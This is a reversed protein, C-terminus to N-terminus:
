FNRLSANLLNEEELYQRFLLGRPTITYGGATQELLKSRVLYGIFSPINQYVNPALIQHENFVEQLNEFSVYGSSAAILLAKIQTGFIIRYIKELEYRTSIERLAATRGEPTSIDAQQQDVDVNESQQKSRLDFEVGDKSVKKIIYESFDPLWPRLLFYGAILFIIWKLKDLYALFRDHPISNNSIWYRNLMYAMLAIIVLVIALRTLKFLFYGISLLWRKPLKVLIVSTSPEKNREMIIM